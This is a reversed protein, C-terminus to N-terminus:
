SLIGEEHALCPVKSVNRHCKLPTFHWGKSEFTGDSYWCLMIRVVTFHWCEVWNCLVGTFLPSETPLTMGQCEVRSEVKLEVQCEVWGEVM